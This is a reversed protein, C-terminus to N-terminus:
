KIIPFTEFKMDTDVFVLSDNVRYTKGLDQFTYDLYVTRHKKENYSEALADNKSYFVGTGTVAITTASKQSVTVTKNANNFTLLMTYKPNNKVEFQGGGAIKDSISQTLSVTNLKINTNDTLFRQRYSVVDNPDNVNTRKGRYLYVGHTPNIYKIGFLVYNQPKKAWDTAIVPNPALIGTAPKGSLISDVGVANTMRVPLVYHLGISLPDNFFADTLNVRMKGVYSGSPITIKDFTANYYNAPLLVLPQGLDDKLGDLLNSALEVNIVINKNNQYAGGMSAGISFAHELDISNDGIVEDGLNIARLPSQYPFYVAQYAFDDFKIDNNTCSIMVILLCTLM